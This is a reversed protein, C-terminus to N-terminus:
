RYALWSEAARGLDESTVVLRERLLRELLLRVMRTERLMEDDGRSAAGAQGGRGLGQATTEVSAQVAPGTLGVQGAKALGRAAAAVVGREDLMGKALAAGIARGSYLTWGRGSFPGEKAPSSPLLNRAASLVNGVAGTVSDKMSTIGNKLGEMIKSGVGSLITLPNPIASRIKEPLSKFWTQVAEWKEAFKAKAGDIVDRAWTTFKSVLAVVAAIVKAPLGRFWSIIVEWRNSFWTRARDMVDRAWTGFNAILAVVAALAKAPLGRLWAVIADWKSKFNTWAKQLSERAWTALMGPLKAVAALLKGPMQGFWNLIPGPSNGFISKFGEWARTFADRAWGWLKEGLDGLAEVLKGPLESFWEGLREGLDTLGEVIRPWAEVVAEAIAAFLEIGAALLVPIMGIVAAVLQPAAEVIAFIIQPLALILAEVLGLFLEIGATVLMPMMGTVASVIDPLADLLANIIDPLATTISEILGLFLEIGARILLPAAKTLAEIIDPLADVLARVILPMAELVADVLALFLEVGAQLLVPIAEIVAAIIQPLAAALAAVIDPIADAVALALALFLEIAADLLLPFAELVASLILPIADVIAGVVDPIVEPVAQALATFLHVAGAVLVPLAGVLADVVMPVVEVIAAVIDPIVQVAADVLGVLLTVAGAVLLPLGEVLADVIKPVVEAISEVVSPIVEVVADVLVSFVDVAIDLLRLKADVFANLMKDIGGGSVLWDVIDDFIGKLTDFVGQVSLRERFADFADGFAELASRGGALSGTFSGVASKWADLVPEVLGKLRSFVSDVRDRFEESTEYARVLASVLGLIAAIPLVAAVGAMVAHVAAWASAFGAILVVAKGVTAATARIVEEHERLFGVAKSVVESVRDFAARVKTGFAHAADGSRIVLGTIPDIENAVGRLGNLFSTVATMARQFAPGFWAEFTAMAPKMARNLDDIWGTVGNFFLRAQRFVPGALTEGLRGAAAGMNRFAGMTTNGSALAAGGINKEIIDAFKEFDVQGDSVMKRAAEATVGYEEALWQLIPLGQQGLVRLDDGTMRGQAAVRAFRDGMYAFDVGAIQATDGVLRLARELDEGPKIGAAVAQAAITAADDLRYATGLVSQLANDMILDVTQVDHGLGILKARAEEIGVLRKLGQQIAIGFGAIATAGAVKFALGLVKNVSQGFNTIVQDVKAFGKVAEREAGALAGTFADHFGSADGGIDVWVSGLTPGGLAV